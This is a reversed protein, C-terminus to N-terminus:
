AYVLYRTLFRELARLFDVMTERKRWGHGEGAYVHYEHPTGNRQLAAVIADSQNKPVVEDIEGQFVALPRRIESARFEPSRERYLAAAEPLPGILSDTYHAEFKHTEAALTFQNAVGFLCVGVTFADPYDIMAQLVTFGGASGGMIATREGDVRGSAALARAGSVCDQVDAVGWQGRLALMYDRGYGTSGRYNAALVAYGRSTLFQIQSSYSVKVQSTPGGHAVVVLPPKGVGDFRDNAPPYFLGHVTAGDLSAWSIPEPESVAGAPALEVASRRVIRPRADSDDVTLVRPPVSSSSGIVAFRGTALDVDPDALDTYPELSPVPRLEGTRLDAITVTVFGERNVLVWATRGDPALAYTRQGQIWAPIWLDAREVGISVVEGGAVPQLRLRGWGGEDSVFALATGDLTFSPQVISVDDSGAVLRAGGASPLGGDGPFNVSALMLRTGDWPMLPHDWEVWSVSRGDPSWCPQMYFDSGAAFVRPWQEGAADVIALRDVGEVSHVYLLWRGDPSPTPAAASGFPPTVPSAIGGDLSQRFIRGSDGDAFYVVGGAVAFDGGGYGVRARVSLSDNLDRPADPGDPQHVLVGTGSREELWVLGGGGTDWQPSSLRNATAAGEPALWSEWLGYQRRIRQQKKVLNRRQLERGIRAISHRPNYGCRAAGPGGAGDPAGADLGM